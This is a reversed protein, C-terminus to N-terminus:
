LNITKPCISIKITNLKEKWFISVLFKRYSSHVLLIFLSAIGYHIISIMGVLNNDVQNYQDSGDKNLIILVPIYTLLMPLLNQIVLGIFVRLQLRRTAASANSNKFIVLYYVCCASFFLVQAMSLLFILEGFQKIYTPWFTAFTMVATPETFFEKAPCPLM